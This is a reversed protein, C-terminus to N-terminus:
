AAEMSKQTTRPTLEGPTVRTVLLPRAAKLQRGLADLKNTTVVRGRRVQSGIQALQIQNLTDGRETLELGKRKDDVRDEENKPHVVLCATPM